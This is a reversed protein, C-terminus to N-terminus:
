VSVCKSGAHPSSNKLKPFKFSSTFLKPTDSIPITDVAKRKSSRCGKESDKLEPIKSPYSEKKDIINWRDTVSNKGGLRSTGTEATCPRLVPTVFDSRSKRISDLERSLRSIEQSKKISDAELKAMNTKLTVVTNDKESNSSQLHEMDNLLKQIKENAQEVEACKSRLQNTKEKEMKNFQNWVFSKELLLASVESNNKSILEKIESKLRRVEHELAECQRAEDKIKVTKSIDNPETCKRSVHDLLEKFDELDSAADELKLKNLFAERQKLGVMLDSKAAEVARIKEEVTFDRELQSIQDCKLKISDVLLNREGELVEIVTQQKRLMLVATDFFKQWKQRDSSVNSDKLTAM